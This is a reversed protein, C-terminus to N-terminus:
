WPDVLKRLHFGGDVNFVEGTSFEFYGRAIAGVAKAVDEPKGWRKIPAVGESIIRDYKEKFPEILPTLTIGPRIEYVKIDYESLRDAYLKTVMSLGAKSICYDGRYLSSAYSNASAINVIKPNLDRNKQKLEIMWRAVLQTLFYPGKLNVSLVNDFDDETAELIDVRLKPGIGANNVLIDIRGFEEKLKALISNRGESSAIDAKVFIAKTGIAQIKNIIPIAQKEECIDDIVINFGSQALELAIAAGIGRASGTILAV